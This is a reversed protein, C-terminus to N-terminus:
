PSSQTTEKTRGIFWLKTVTNKYCRNYLKELGNVDWDHFSQKTLIIVKPRKVRRNINEILESCVSKLFKHGNEMGTEITDSTSLQRTPRRVETNIPIGNILGNKLEESHKILNKWYSVQLSKSMQLLIDTLSDIM